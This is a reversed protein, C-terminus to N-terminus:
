AEFYEDESATEDVPTLDALLEKLQKNRKHEKYLEFTLLPVGILNVAVATIVLGKVVQKKTLKKKETNKKM